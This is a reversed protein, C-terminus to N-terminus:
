CCNSPSAHMPFPDGVKFGWPSSISEDGDPLHSSTSADEETSIANIEAALTRSPKRKLKPLKFNFKSGASASGAVSPATQADGAGPVALSVQSSSPSIFGGGMKQTATLVNALNQWRSGAPTSPTNPTAKPPLLSAQSPQGLGASGYPSNNARYGPDKPPPPPPAFDQDQDQDVSGDHYPTIIFPLTKDKSQPNWIRSIGEM